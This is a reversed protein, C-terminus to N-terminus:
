YDQKIRWRIGDIILQTLTMGNIDAYEQAREKLDVPMHFTVTTKPVRYGSGKFATDQVDMIKRAPKDSQKPTPGFNASPKKSM